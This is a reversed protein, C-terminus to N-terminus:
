RTKYPPAIKKKERADCAEVELAAELLNGEPDFKIFIVAKQFDPRLGDKLTTIKDEDTM